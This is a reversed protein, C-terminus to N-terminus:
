AYPCVGASYNAYQDASLIWSWSTGVRVAHFTQVVLVPILGVMPSTVSVRVKIAKTLISGRRGAVHISQNFVRLAQVGILTGPSPLLSECTVYAELSAVRQHPPYLTEWALAYRSEMKQRVVSVMYKGAPEAPRPVERAIAVGTFLLGTAGGILAASVFRNM